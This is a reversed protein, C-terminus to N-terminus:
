AHRASRSGPQSTPASMRAATPLSFFVRHEICLDKLRPAGLDDGNDREPRTTKVPHRSIVGFERDFVLLHPREVRPHFQKAMIDHPIHVGLLPELRALVPQSVHLRSVFPHAAVVPRDNHRPMVRKYGHRARERELPHYLGRLAIVERSPRRVHQRHGVHELRQREPQEAAIEAELALLPRVRVLNSSLAARIPDAADLFCADPHLDGGVRMEEVHVGPRLTVQVAVM